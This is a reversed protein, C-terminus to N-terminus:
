WTIVHKIPSDQGVRRPIVSGDSADRVQGREDFGKNNVVQESSRDLDAQALPEKVTSLLGAQMSGIYQDEATSPQYPGPHRPGDNPGAGLGKTSTVWLRGDGVQLSSPYWGTPIVGVSRGSGLDVVDVDNNGSNAVYLEAVAAPPQPADRGPGDLAARAGRWAPGGRLRVGVPSATM